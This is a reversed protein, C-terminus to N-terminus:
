EPQLAVMPNVKTARRAPVYSALLAVAALTLSVTIFVAPDTVEIGYLLAAMLRTAPLAVAVGVAIGLLALTVGDRVVLKLVDKPDAGLAMRIGMEHTRQAVSYSLVGYIGISALLLGLGAFLSIMTANFRPRSITNSVIEELTRVETVPMIPQLKRLVRTIPVALSQPNVSSRIVLTFQSRNDFAYTHFVAPFTEKGLGEAPVDAVVGVIESNLPRYWEYQIREGVASKGNMYKREWTENVVVETAGAGINRPDLARGKLVQIGMARFYDGGVSKIDSSLGEDPRQRPKGVIDVSDRAIYGTFPLGTDSGVADVGPVRRVAEFIEEMMATRRENTDVDPLVIKMTLVGERRVGPDVQELKGFSRILLGAGILLVTALAVETVVLLNRFGKGRRSESSGRTASNLGSQLNTRSAEIAPALGFLIGTALTLLVTVGLVRQDIAIEDLRPMMATEPVLRVFLMTAWGALVVGLIGAIIALVLSEIMLQRVLQGRGAGLAARISMEKSRSAARSLLLNAINVCAILLLLAVAAMAVLLTRRVDGVVQEHVSMVNVGMNTNFQPSAAQTRKAVVDMHAQAQEESVGPALRAMPHLYRGRTEPKIQMPLWIAAKSNPVFFERPMVGIVTVPQGEIHFTKGLVNRDGGFKRQWFDYSLVASNDVPATIDTGEITKGFFPRTGLTPFLTSSCLGVIITDPDGLQTLSMEWDFNTALSSFVKTEKSWEYVNAPSAYNRDGGADGLLNHEWVMVLRQPDKFPLPRLLVGNIISFMATTAGIGLALTLIAVLAFGPNARLSRLAYRLDKLVLEM